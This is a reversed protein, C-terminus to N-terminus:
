CDSENNKIHVFDKILKEHTIGEIEIVDDLVCSAGLAFTRETTIPFRYMPDGPKNHFSYLQKDIILIKPMIEEYKERLMFCNHYLPFRNSKLPPLQTLAYNFLDIEYFGYTSTALLDHLNMTKLSVGINPNLMKKLKHISGKPFKMDYQVFGIYDAKSVKNLVIHHNVGGNMWNNKQWDPDYLPLEWEKVYKEPLEGEKEINENVAVFTLCAKEEDDLEEYMDPFYKKHFIVFIELSPSM